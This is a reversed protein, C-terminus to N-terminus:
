GERATNLVDINRFRAPSCGHSVGNSQGPEGKGDYFSGGLRYEEASCIADCARWFDPTRAQYAVDKLMREVKGDRVEYWAQGGFQFNYRQHDISYSGRGLILIARETDAILDDLSLPARGPVLNVNPMRQIPVDRWSQAYSCGNSHRRGLLPAQERTTQYDVFIGDKVLDWRTTAVGEDDYGCTALAHPHTKEAEFSVIDSGIRFHGLKDPTLFSTGAYNAEMGLARDYETPHGISEHITLWLHSPHLILDWKGPEVSPADHKAVADRGAQRVDDLWPYDEVYEYGMGQPNTYSNRSQFGKERDVSTVTFAPNCRHLTQEVVTGESSAFLKLERVFHMQSSCFSVGPVELAAANVSLLRDIKEELPVEFPDRRIPTNWVAVQEEAEALTIPEGQLLYNTRAMSCARRAVRALEDRDIKSSAAFGWTGRWLARVGFGRDERDSIGTVRAERTRVVQSRTDVFRVDVYSAGGAGGHQIAVQALETLEPDPELDPRSGDRLVDTEPGTQKAVPARCGQVLLLPGALTSAKLFERRQLPPTM